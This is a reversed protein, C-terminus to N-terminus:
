RKSDPRLLILPTEPPVTLQLQESTFPETHELTRVILMAQRGGTHQMHLKRPIPRTSDPWYEITLTWDKGDTWTHPLGNADISIKGALPADAITYMITGDEGQAANRLPPATKRDPSAFLPSYCGTVLAALDALSFPVPVDFALLNNDAAYYVAKDQPVHIFLGRSDENVAAMVSGQGMLIDLRLPLPAEKDGNGWFYVLVRQSEENGSYYLTGNMRFPGSAAETRASANMFRTWIEKAATFDAPIRATETPRACAALTALALCLVAPYISRPLLTRLPIRM